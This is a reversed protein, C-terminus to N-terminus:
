FNMRIGGIFRAGYQEYEYIRAPIGEYRIGATDTLNNADVFLEFRPNIAYRASLDLRGFNDWFRNGIVDTTISNLWYGREQWSVRLSLGYKEYYGSINYM